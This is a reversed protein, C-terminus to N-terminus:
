IDPKATSTYLACGRSKINGATFFFHATYVLSYPINQKGVHLPQSFTNVAQDIMRICSKLSWILEM